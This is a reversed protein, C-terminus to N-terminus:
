APASSPSKRIHVNKNMHKEGNEVGDNGRFRSDLYKLAGAYRAMMCTKDGLPINTESSERKRPFSLSILKRESKRRYRGPSAIRAWRSM